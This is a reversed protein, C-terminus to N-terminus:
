KVGPINLIGKKSIVDAFSEGEDGAGHEIFYAEDVTKLLRFDTPTVGIILVEKGIKLAAVGRKPGFSLYEVLRMFGVGKRRKKFGYALVFILTIVATLSIIMQLYADSM